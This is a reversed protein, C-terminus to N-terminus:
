GFSGFSFVARVSYFFLVSSENELDCVVLGEVSFLIFGSFHAFSRWFEENEM